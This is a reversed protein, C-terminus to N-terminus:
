KPEPIDGSHNRLSETSAPESSVRLAQLAGLIRSESRSFEQSLKTTVREEIEESVQTTYDEQIRHVITDREQNNRPQEEHNEGNIAALKKQEERNDTEPSYFYNFTIFVSNNKNSFILKSVPYVITIPFCFLSQNTDDTYFGLIKISENRKNVGKPLRSFYSYVLWTVTCFPSTSKHIFCWLEFASEPPFHVSKWGKKGWRVRAECKDVSFPYCLASEWALM